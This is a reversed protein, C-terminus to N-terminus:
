GLDTWSVHNIIYHVNAPSVGFQGAIQQLTMLGTAAIRRIERVDDPNLKATRSRRVNVAPTVPEMHDPNVCSKVRCLHDLEMGEPIPGVVAEYMARHASRERIHTPARGYGDRNLAGHWVWCPTTYGRDQVVYRNLGGKSAHHGHIFRRSVGKVYGKAPWDRPSVTTERGCGCQCLGLPIADQPRM